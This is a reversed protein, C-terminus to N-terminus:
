SKLIQKLQDVVYEPNQSIDDWGLREAYANLVWPPDYNYCEEHKGFAKTSHLYIWYVKELRSANSLLDLVNCRLLANKIIELWSEDVFGTNIMNLADLLFTSAGIFMSFDECVTKTAGPRPSHSVKANIKFLKDDGSDIACIQVGGDRSAKLAMNSLRVDMWVYGSRFIKELLGGLYYQLVCSSESFSGKFEILKCGPGNNCSCSTPHIKDLSLGQNLMLICKIKQERRKSGRGPTAPYPLEGAYCSRAFIGALARNSYYIERWFDYETAQDESRSSFKLFVDCTKRRPLLRHRLPKPAGPEYFGCSEDKALFKAVVSESFPIKTIWVKDTIKTARGKILNDQIINVFVQRMQRDDNVNINKYKRSIHLKPADSSTDAICLEYVPITQKNQQGPKGILNM